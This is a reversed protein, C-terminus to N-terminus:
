RNVPAVNQAHRDPNPLFYCGSCAECVVDLGILADGCSAYARLHLVPQSFTGECHPCTAHDAKRLKRSRRTGTESMLASM